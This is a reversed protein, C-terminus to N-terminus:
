VPKPDGGSLPQILGAGVAESKLAELAGHIVKTLRRARDKTAGADLADARAHIETIFALGHDALEDHSLDSLDAM